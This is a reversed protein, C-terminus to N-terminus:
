AIHEYALSTVPTLPTADQQLQQDWSRSLTPYFLVWTGWEPQKSKVKHQQDNIFTNPNALFNSALFTAKWHLSEKICRALDKGSIKKTTTNM